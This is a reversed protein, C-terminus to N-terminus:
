CERNGPHEESEAHEIRKHIHRAAEDMQGAAAGHLANGPRQHHRPRRERCEGVGDGGDAQREPQPAFPEPGAGQHGHEFAGQLVCAPNGRGQLQAAEPAPCRVARAAVVVATRNKHPVGPEADSVGLHADRIERRRAPRDRDDGPRRAGALGGDKAAEGAEEGM